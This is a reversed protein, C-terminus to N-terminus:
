VQHRHLSNLFYFCLKHCSINQFQLLEDQFKGPSQGRSLVYIQLALQCPAEM